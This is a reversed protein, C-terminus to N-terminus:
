HRNFLLASRASERHFPRDTRILLFTAFSSLNYRRRPGRRPTDHRHLWDSFNTLIFGGYLGADHKRVQYLIAGGAFAQVNTATAEM